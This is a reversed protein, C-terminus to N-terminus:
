NIIQLDLVLFGSLVKSEAWQMIEACPDCDIDLVIQPNAPITLSHM